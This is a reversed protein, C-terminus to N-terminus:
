SLERNPGAVTVGTSRLMWRKGDGRFEAISLPEIDIRAFCAPPAGLVTLIAARMVAPHTVAVTEEARGLLGTMFGDVRRCLQAFSEGGPPTADPDSLWAGLAGPDTEQLEALDRGAWDGFDQDSLAEEEAISSAFVEATQRARLASSTVIGDFRRLHATPDASRALFRADAPEDLPFAGRRMTATPACCILLLRQAMHNAGKRQEM